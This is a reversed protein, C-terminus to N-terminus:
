TRDMDAASRRWEPPYSLPVTLVPCLGSLCSLRSRLWGALWLTTPLWGALWLTTPLWGALFTIPLWGALPTGLWSLVTQPAWGAPIAIFPHSAGWPRNGQRRDALRLPLPVLWGALVPPKPRLQGPPPICLAHPPV